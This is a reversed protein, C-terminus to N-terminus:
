DRFSSRGSGGILNAAKPNVSPTHSNCCCGSNGPAAQSASTEASAAIPASPRELRTEGITAAPALKMPKAASPKAQAAASACRRSESRSSGSNSPRSMSALPTTAPSGCAKSRPTRKSKSTSDGSVPTGRRM